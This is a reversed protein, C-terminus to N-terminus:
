RRFTFLPGAAPLDTGRAPPTLLRNAGVGTRTATLPSDFAIEAFGSETFWARIEPTLDPERRHRTWIVTGGLRCMRAAAAVTRRIDDESINGFIGCLLLVDAPLADAYGTVLAADAQRVLVGPLCASAARRRADAAIEADFEVLVAAVDDRRRHGPLVGIVDLAQGACLSLLRVPGPPANTLADALHGQVLALRARLPSEPDDYQDHWRAWDRTM